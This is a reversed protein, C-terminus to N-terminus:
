GLDANPEGSECKIKGRDIMDWIRGMVVDDVTVQICATGPIEPCPHVFQIKDAVGHNTAWKVARYPTPFTMTAVFVPRSNALTGFGFVDTVGYKEDGATSFLCEIYPRNERPIYAAVSGLGWDIKM